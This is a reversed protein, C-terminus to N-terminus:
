HPVWCASRMPYGSTACLETTSRAFSSFFTTSSLGAPARTHGTWSAPCHRGIDRSVVHLLSPPQCNTEQGGEKEAV